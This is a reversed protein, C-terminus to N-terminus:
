VEPGEPEAGSAAHEFKIRDHASSIAGRSFQQRLYAALLDATKFEGSLHLETMVKLMRETIAPMLQTRVEPENEGMIAMQSTVLLAESYLAKLETYHFRKDEARRTLSGTGFAIIAAIVVFTGGIVTGQAPTLNYWADLLM